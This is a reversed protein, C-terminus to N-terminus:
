SCKPCSIQSWDTEDVDLQGSPHGSPASVL